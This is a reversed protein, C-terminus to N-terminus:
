FPVGLAEVSADVGHSRLVGAYLEAATASEFPLSVIGSGNQRTWGERKLMLALTTTAPKVRVVAPDELPRGHVEAQGLIWRAEERRSQQALRAERVKQLKVERARGRCIICYRSKGVAPRNCDDRACREGNPRNWPKVNPPKM